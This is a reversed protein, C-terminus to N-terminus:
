AQGGRERQRLLDVDRRDRAIAHKAEQIGADNWEGNAMREETSAIVREKLRIQDHISPIRLEFSEWRIALAERYIEDFSLGDISTLIDIEPNHENPVPIRVNPTRLRELYVNSAGCLKKLAAFVRESTVEDRDVWLDLDRTEREIGTAQMAKGGILLFRVGSAGLMRVFRGQRNSLDLPSRMKQQIARAIRQERTGRRKAEGM